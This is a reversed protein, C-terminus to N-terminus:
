ELRITSGAKTTRMQGARQVFENGEVRANTNTCGGAAHPQYDVRMSKVARVGGDVSVATANSWRAEFRPGDCPGFSEIYMVPGRIYPSRSFLQRIEDRDGTRLNTISGLWPFVDDPREDGREITLRYPVGKDWRFDRTAKEQTASPLLPESSELREGKATYGEWNVAGRDPFRPHHQLGLHCSGGGPKVFTGQIAFSVL